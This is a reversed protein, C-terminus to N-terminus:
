QLKEMTNVVVQLKTFLIKRYMQRFIKQKPCYWMGKLQDSFPDQEATHQQQHPTKVRECKFSRNFSCFSIFLM